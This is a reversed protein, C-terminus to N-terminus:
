TIRQLNKSFSKARILDSNHDLFYKCSYYIDKLRTHSWSGIDKLLDLIMWYRDKGDYGDYNESWFDCFTYLGMQRLYELYNRSGMVIFPRKCLICRVLKETPYFSNGACVPECIIDIMFNRYATNLPNSYDYSGRQYPYPTKTTRLGDLRLLAASDWSFLRQLDFLKRSDENDFDFATLIHSKMGFQQALFSAIGLRPASPRGYVCGFIKTENWDTVDSFPFNQAFMWSSWTESQIHYRDHYEFANSTIITVSKFQFCDLIDYVGTYRLCHAENNVSLCIEQHQNKSLFQILGVHNVLQDNELALEFQLM